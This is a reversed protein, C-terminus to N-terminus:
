LKGQQEKIEKSSSDTTKETEISALKLLAVQEEIARFYKSKKQWDLQCSNVHEEYNDRIFERSLIDAQFSIIQKLNSCLLDWM